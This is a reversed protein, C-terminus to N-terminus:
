KIKGNLEEIVKRLNEEKRVILKHNHIIEKLIEKYEPLIKYLNYRNPKFSIMRGKYQIYFVKNHKIETKASNLVISHHWIYLGIKGDLLRHVFVDVSDNKTWLFIKKKTFSIKDNLNIDYLTFGSIMSKILQGIQYDNKRLWLIEDFCQNYRLYQNKVVNGDTLYVDGKTWKNFFQEDPLMQTNHWITAQIKPEYVNNIISDSECQGFSLTSIRIVFFIIILIKNIM